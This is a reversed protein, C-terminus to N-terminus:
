QYSAMKFVHRCYFQMGLRSVNANRLTINRLTVCVYICVSPSIRYLILQRTSLYEAIFHVLKLLGLAPLYRAGAHEFVRMAVVTPMLLFNM